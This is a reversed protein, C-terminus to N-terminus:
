LFPINLIILKVAKNLNHILSLYSPNWPANAVLGFSASYESSSLGGIAVNKLCYVRKIEDRYPHLCAKRFRTLLTKTHVTDPEMSVIKM